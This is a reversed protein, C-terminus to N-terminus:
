RGCAGSIIDILLDGQAEFMDVGNMVRCGLDSAYQVLPTVAPRTVVDGIFQSPQLNEIDVPLPDDSGMGLPTANSIIDYGLPNTGGVRVQGPFRNSLRAILSDRRVTDTDHIALEACGRDLFEYAIAAGAGGAGVLLVRAGAIDGGAQRIGQCHGFGDTNDGRWGSGSRVMVNASGAYTARETLSDCFKALAQKHPVTAILGPINATVSVGALYTSLDDPHVEAPVVIINQGGEAFKQSLRGPSKVQGVPFGVIPVIRTEGSLQKM